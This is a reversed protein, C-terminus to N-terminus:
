RPPPDCFRARHMLKSRGTGSRDSKSFLAQAHAHMPPGRTPGWHRESVKWQPRLRSHGSSGHLECPVHLSCISDWDNLIRARRRRDVFTRVQVTPDAPSFGSGRDLIFPDSFPSSSLCESRGSAVSARGLTRKDRGDRRRKTVDFGVGGRRRSPRHVRSTLTPCRRPQKRMPLVSSHAPPDVWSRSPRGAPLAFGDPSGRPRDLRVFHNEDAHHVGRCASSGRMSASPRPARPRM